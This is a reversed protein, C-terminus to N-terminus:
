IVPQDKYCIPLIMDTFYFILVYGKLAERRVKM